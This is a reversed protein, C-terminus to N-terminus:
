ANVTELKQEKIGLFKLCDRINEEEMKLLRKAFKVLDEEAEGDYEKLRRTIQIIGMISGQILMEAIHDPSKDTLTKMNIMIYTAMKPMKGVSKADKNFDNLMIESEDFVHKYEKFQHRLMNKFDGNDVIELLRNISDQGMEANQHIYNLLEVNANM